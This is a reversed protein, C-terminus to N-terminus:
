GWARKGAGSPADSFNSALGGVLWAAWLLLWAVAGAALVGSSPRGLPARPVLQPRPLLRLVARPASGGARPVLISRARALARLDVTSLNGHPGGRGQGEGDWGPLPQALATRTGPSNGQSRDQAPAGPLGRSWAFLRLSM